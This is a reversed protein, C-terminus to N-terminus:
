RSSRPELLFLESARDTELHNASMVASVRRDLVLEIFEAIQRGVVDNVAARAEAVVSDYGEDVLSREGQTLTGELVVLVHDEAITTRALAAGRGTFERLLSVVRRSIQTPVDTDEDAELPM